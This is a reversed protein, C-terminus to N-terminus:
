YFVFSCDMFSDIVSAIKAALLESSLSIKSLMFINHMLSYFQIFDLAGYTNGELKKDKLTRFYLHGVFRYGSYCLTETMLLTPIPWFSTVSIFHLTPLSLVINKVMKAGIVLNHIYHNLRQTNSMKPWFIM